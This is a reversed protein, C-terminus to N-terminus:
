KGPSSRDGVQMSKNVARGVLPSQAESWPLVERRAPRNAQRESSTTAHRMGGLQCEGIPRLEWGEVNPRSFVAQFLTTM